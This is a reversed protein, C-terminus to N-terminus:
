QQIEPIKANRTNTANKYYGTTKQKTNKKTNKATNRLIKAM